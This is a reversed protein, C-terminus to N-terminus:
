QQEEPKSLATIAARAHRFAKQVEFDRAEPKWKMHRSWVENMYKAFSEDAEPYGSLWLAKAMAEIEDDRPAAVSAGLRALRLLNQLSEAPVRIVLDTWAPQTMAIKEYSAIFADIEERKM